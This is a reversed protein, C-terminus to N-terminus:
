IPKHYALFLSSRSLVLLGRSPLVESTFLSYLINGTKHLNHFFLCVVSFLWHLPGSVPLLTSLELFALFALTVPTSHALPRTNPANTKYRQRTDKLLNSLRETGSHGQQWSPAECVPNQADMSTFGLEEM